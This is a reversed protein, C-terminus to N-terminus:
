LFVEELKQATQLGVARKKEEGNEFLILTPIAQVGYKSALEGQEDVNIKVTKVKGENAKEFKALEPTQLTCPGCWVAWFDVVVPLESKLVEEEFNENTVVITAM